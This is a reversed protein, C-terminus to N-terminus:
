DLYGLAELRQKIKEREEDSMEVPMVKGKEGGAEEYNIPNEKTFKGDICDELVKGDMSKPVPIGMVYLLTPVIDIIETNKVEGKKFVSGSLTLIGYLDHWAEAYPHPKIQRPDHEKGILPPFKAPLIIIDPAEKFCEGSFVEEKKYVKEIVRNGADDTIKYLEGIIYDRVQEYEEGGNVIGQPERGVTNIYIYKENGLVYAKTNPWDIDYSSVLKQYNEIVKRPLFKTIVANLGLKSIISYVRDHLSMRLSGSMEKLVLQNKEELWRNLTMYQGARYVTGFGHDSVLAIQTEEKASKLIRGIAADTEIYANKVSERYKEAGIAKYQPFRPDLYKWTLHQAKEVEDFWIVSFDPDYKRLLYIVNYASLRIIEDLEDLYNMDLKRNKLKEFTAYSDVEQLLGQRLSEPYMGKDFSPSGMDGSVIFGKIKEPPYTFPLNYSGGVGGHREVISWVAEARRDEASVLTYTYKGKERKTFYYMGHKGANKGTILSPVAPITLPPMTSKLNGSYGDKMLGKINPLSGEEAWPRVLNWTAGDIGIIMVKNKPM